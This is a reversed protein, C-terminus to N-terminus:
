RVAALFQDLRADFSEAADMMVWHSVGEILTFPIGPIARQFMTPGDLAEAAIVLKPGAYGAVAPRPDYGMGGYTSCMFVERPTAHLSCLVAARTGPRANVLIPEFWRDVFASYREPRFGQRVEELEAANPTWYSGDVLVLGALREPYAAAFVAAVATGYSHAVLVFRGLGLADAVTLVDQAMAELAFDHDAPPQSGGHGRLDLAAARRSRRLHVLQASWQELRAAGGHVFLVPVDGRGGDDVRLSGQPGQIFREGGETMHVGVSGPHVCVIDALAFLRPRCKVWPVM